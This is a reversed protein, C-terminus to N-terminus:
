FMKNALSVKLAEDIFKALEISYQRYKENVFKCLGDKWAKLEVLLGQKLEPLFLTSLYVSM